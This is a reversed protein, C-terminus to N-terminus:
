AAAGDRRRRRTARAADYSAFVQARTSKIYHTETVSGQRHTLLHQAMDPHDPEANVVYTAQGRRFDQPGSGTRRKVALYLSRPAMPRGKYTLWLATDDTSSKLLETFYTSYGSPSLVAFARELNLVRQRAKGTTVCSGLFVAFREISAGDIITDTSASALDASSARWHLYTALAHTNIAWTCKSWRGSPLTSAAATSQLDLWNERIAAPWDQLALARVHCGEPTATSVAAVRRCLSTTGLVPRWFSLYRALSSQLDEPWDMISPDGNKTADGDLMICWSLGIQKFSVGLRLGAYNGRRLARYALGAILLGDRYIAARIRLRPDKGAEAEAMMAIGRRILETPSPVKPDTATHGDQRRLSNVISKLPKPDIDPAAVQLSYVLSNARSFVTATAVRAQMYEIYDTLAQETCHLGAAEGQGTLRQWGIYCGIAETCTAWTGARWNPRPVPDLVTPIGTQETGDRMSKWTTRVDSPWQELPVLACRDVTQADRM